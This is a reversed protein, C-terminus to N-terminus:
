EECVEIARPGKDTTTPVFTVRDGV